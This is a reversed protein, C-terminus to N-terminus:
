RQAVKDSLPWGRWGVVDLLSAGIEQTRPGSGDDDPRAHPSQPSQFSAQGRALEPGKRGRGRQSGLTNSDRFGRKDGRARQKISATGHRVRFQVQFRPRGQSATRGYVPQTSNSGTQRRRSGRKRGDDGNKRCGSFARGDETGPFGLHAAVAQGFLLLAGGLPENVLARGADGEGGGQCRGGKGPQIPRSTTHRDDTM